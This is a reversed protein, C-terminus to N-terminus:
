DIISVAKYYALTMLEASFTELSQSFVTSLIKNM